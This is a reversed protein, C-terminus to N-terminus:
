IGEKTCFEKAIVSTSLLECLLDYIGNHQALAGDNDFIECLRSLYNYISQRVIKSVM